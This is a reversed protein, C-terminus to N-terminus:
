RDQARRHAAVALREALHRLLLDVRDGAQRRHDRDERDHDDQEGHERQDDDVRQAVARPAQERDDAVIGIASSIPTHIFLMRGPLTPSAVTMPM